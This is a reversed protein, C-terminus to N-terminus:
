GQCSKRGSYLKKAKEYDLPTNINFFSIMEPDYSTITKEDIERIKIESYFATVKFNKEELFSAILDLIGRNYFAFLPQFYGGVCPIVADYNLAHKSMHGILSRSIFPMDCGIFFCAQSSAHFLGSHIGRLANKEGVHLIDSVIKGNLYRFEEVRDTVILIEDFISELKRFVLEVLPKGDLTLFAKNTGMRKSDGGALIVASLSNNLLM